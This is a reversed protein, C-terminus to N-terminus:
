SEGDRVTGQTRSPHAPDTLATLSLHVSISPSMRGSGLHRSAVSWPSPCSSMHYRLPLHDPNQDAANDNQCSEDQRHLAHHLHPAARSLRFVRRTVASLWKRRLHTAVPM